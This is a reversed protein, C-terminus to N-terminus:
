FRVTGGLAVENLSQTLRGGNIAQQSRYGTTADGSLAKVAGQGGNDLTGYFVHAYAVDLDVPGVRVVGGGSVGAKWGMHFDLNLYADDQGKSEFFGGARLGLLNPVVTVDSGLRVGLVDRWEHPIDGNQPVEGPTGKVAIGPDFRLGINQLASNNAWTVDLEVDFRDQSLPDRVTASGSAWDPRESAEELPVHLRVGLQADMPIAMELSGADEDVTVNCEPDDDPCPSEDPAGGAMWVQSTLTLKTRTRIADSFRYSAGVDLYKSPRWTAGLVFGPIFLDEAQLRARVDRTFDDQKTTSTSETYTTFDAAAIGWVFGAGLSLEPTVAYSASITPFVLLSAQSVLLYRNPAPQTRAKGNREYDVSEPWDVVGATHPGLVALGIALEDNVRWVGALQPNPFITNTCTEASPGGEAGPGPIANGPSVPKGEEDLRTFCANQFILHSGLHVGSAQFSMASPNMYAALPDNARAVWAGGRGVQQAGADPVQLGGTAQANTAALTVAGFLGVGLATSTASPGRFSRKM